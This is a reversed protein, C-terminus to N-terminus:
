FPDPKHMYWKITYDFEIKQVIGKPKGKGGLRTEDQVRKYDKIVEKTM